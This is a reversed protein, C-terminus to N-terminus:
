QTERVDGRAVIPTCDADDEPRNTHSDAQNGRFPKSQDLAGSNVDPESDDLLAFYSAAADGFSAGIAEIPAQMQTRLMLRLDRAAKLRATLEGWEVARLADGGRQLVRADVRPAAAGQWRGFASRPVGFGPRVAVSSPFAKEFMSTTKLAIADLVPLVPM